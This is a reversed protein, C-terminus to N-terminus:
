SACGCPCRPAPARSVHPHCASKRQLYHPVLQLSTHRRGAALGDVRQRASHGHRSNVAAAAAYHVRCLHTAPHSPPLGGKSTARHTVIEKWIVAPRVGFLQPSAALAATEGETLTPGDPAETSPPARAAVLLALAALAALRWGSRQRM